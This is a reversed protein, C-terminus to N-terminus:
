TLLIPDQRQANLRFITINGLVFYVDPAEDYYQKLFVEVQAGPVGTQQTLKVDM